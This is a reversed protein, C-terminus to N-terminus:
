SAYRRRHLAAGLLGLPIPLWYTFLRYAFTALVAKGPSVGALTLTATLGAEVFGLGGPTLPVQTLVQAACFALLVLAPRPTSGVAALAALLSGYDFAWRGVTAGLAERWRPGLTALLRDRESVLRRPVGHMPEDGHRLRNRGRQFIRGLWALPGDLALLLAGLVFLGTFVVAGFVSAAVLSRNVSGGVITPVALIPLALVVAFTLLNAATLGSVARSPEVGAQVLMRYQLAAGIAGGGPAVKAIANGALQSTAVAHWGAAHVALRQLSWLCALSVAQLGLMALLWAPALEDIDRWSSLTDLLGPAVLYLSVATITLWILTRRLSRRSPEAEQAIELEHELDIHEEIARELREGIPERQARRV